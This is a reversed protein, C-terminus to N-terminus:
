DFANAAGEFECILGQVSALFPGFNSRDLLRHAVADYHGDCRHCDEDCVQM